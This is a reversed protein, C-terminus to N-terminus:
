KKHEPPDGSAYNEVPTLKEGPHFGVPCKALIYLAILLHVVHHFVLSIAINTMIEVCGRPKWATYDSCVELAFLFCCSIGSM